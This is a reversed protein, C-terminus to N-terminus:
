LCLTKAIDRESRGFHHSHGEFLNIAGINQHSVNTLPWDSYTYFRSVGSASVFRNDADAGCTLLNRCGYGANRLFGNYILTSVVQRLFQLVPEGLLLTVCRRSLGRAHVGVNHSLLLVQFFTRLLTSKIYFREISLFIM